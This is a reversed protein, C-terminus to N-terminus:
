RREAPRAAIREVPEDRERLVAQDGAVLRRDTVGASQGAAPDPERQELGDVPIREVPQDGVTAFFLQPSPVRDGIELEGLGRFSMQEGGFLWGPDISQREILGVQPRGQAPADIGALGIQRESEDRRRPAVPLDDPLQRFPAVPRLRRDRHRAGIRRRDGPHTRKPRGPLM